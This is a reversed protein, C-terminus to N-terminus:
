WSDEREDPMSPMYIRREGGRKVIHRKTPRSAEIRHQEWEHKRRADTRRFRHLCDRCTKGDDDNAIALNVAVHFSNVHRNLNARQYKGNFQEGCRPCALPRLNRDSTTATRKVKRQRCLHRPAEQVERAMQDGLHMPGDHSEEYAPLVEDLDFSSSYPTQQLNPADYHYGFPNFSSLDNIYQESAFLRRQVFRSLDNSPGTHRHQLEHSAPSDQQSNLVRPLNDSAQPFHCPCFHSCFATTALPAHSLHDALVLNDDHRAIPPVPSLIPASAHQGHTYVDYRNNSFGFEYQMFGKATAHRAAQLNRTDSITSGTPSIYTSPSTPFSPPSITPPPSLLATGAVGGARYKQGHDNSPSIYHASVRLPSARAMDVATNVSTQASSSTQPTNLVPAVNTPSTCACDPHHHKQWARTDVPTAVCETDEHRHTQQYPGTDPHAPLECPERGGPLEAPGTSLYDEAAYARATIDSEFASYKPLRDRSFRPMMKRFSKRISRMRSRSSSCSQRPNLDSHRCHEALPSAFDHTPSDLLPPGIEKATLSSSRSIPQVISDSSRHSSFSLQLESALGTSQSACRALTLIDLGAKRLVFLASLCSKDRGSHTVRLRVDGM